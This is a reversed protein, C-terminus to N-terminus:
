PAASRELERRSWSQAVATGLIFGYLVSVAPIQLSFDVLSHFGVLVTAAVGIGPITWDRRREHAGRVTRIALLLIALNLLAAAPVGLELANELYTNHAKDWVPAVKNIKPLFAPIVDPFTGFGTGTWPSTEIADLTLAYITQRGGLTVGQILYRDLLMGGGATLAVLVFTTSIAIATKPRRGLVKGRSHILSLIVLGATTSFVGARSATLLLAVTQILIAGSLWAANTGTLTEILLAMKQRIPRNLSTIPEIRHIFLSMTCLLCLGMFSAFSNRNVFTSTLNAPYSWKPYILVWKNGAAFVILGYLAYLSGVFAITRLSLRAREPDANLQLSLWFVSAYCLLRMLGSLTEGPNVSIRGPLSTDLAAGAVSWIPDATLGVSALPLTQVWIWLCVLAFLALPAGIKAGPIGIRTGSWIAGSWVILLIGVSLALLAAPLPRNSALPLPALAVLLLLGVYAWSQLRNNSRPSM